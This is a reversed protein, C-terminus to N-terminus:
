VMNLQRLTVVYGEGALQNLGGYKSNKVVVEESWNNLKIVATTLDVKIIEDNNKFLGILKKLGLNIIM